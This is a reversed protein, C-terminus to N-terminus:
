ASFHLPLMVKFSFNDRLLFIIFQLMYFFLIIIYMETAHLSYLGFILVVEQAMCLLTM